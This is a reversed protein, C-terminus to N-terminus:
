AFVVTWIWFLFPNGSRLHHRTKKKRKLYCDDKELPKINFTHKFSPNWHLFSSTTGLNWQNLPIPEPGQPVLAGKIKSLDVEFM